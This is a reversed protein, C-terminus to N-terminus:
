CIKHISHAVCHYHYHHHLHLHYHHEPERPTSHAGSHYHHHHHYHYHHRHEPTRSASHASVGLLLDEDVVAERVPADVLQELLGPRAVISKSVPIVSVLLYIM